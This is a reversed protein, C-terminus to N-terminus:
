LFFVLSYSELSLVGKHFDLFGVTLSICRGPCCLCLLAIKFPNSFCDKKSWMGTEWAPVASFWSPGEPDVTEGTLFPFSLIPM